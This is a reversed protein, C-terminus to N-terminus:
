GSRLAASLLLGGFVLTVIALNAAIRRTQEAPLKRSEPHALVVAAGLFPLAPLPAGLLEVLCAVSAMAAALALVTKRPDLRTARAGAVYLAVFTVDGVGVLAAVDSTGLVPFPVTLLALARPNRLVNATLGSPHFFSFCDAFAAVYAVVMLMAPYQLLSGIYGGVIAGTTLVMLTVGGLLWPTMVGIDLAFLLAYVSLLGVFWVLRREGRRPAWWATLLLAAAAWSLAIARAGAFSIPIYPAALAILAAFLAITSTV